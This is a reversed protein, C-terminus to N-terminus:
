YLMIAGNSKEEIMPQPTKKERTTHTGIYIAAINFFHVVTAGVVFWFSYGYHAMNASSWQNDRDEQSLVNQQLKQYFQVAWLGVACVNFLMALSNWLYLGPVGTATGIPTTATNVVAFVASLGAFLLAGALCAITAVWLGYLLFERDTRMLELVSVDYTRWGYAVNLEKKGEFLGFHIRGDSEEPNSVRRARAVIWFKTGLAAVLLGIGLCSGFFTVFIMGRKFLNM